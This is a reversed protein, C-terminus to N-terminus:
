KYLPLSTAADRCKIYHHAAKEEKTFMDSINNKGAIHSVDCFGSLINERVANERMQLYRLGKTTLNHSWKVCAENDNWIPIPGDTVKEFLNMDKLINSIHQLCKVCEDTAYIEAETSSRATITQRKSSWHVPGGLWIMFGSISRSKWLDLFQPPADVPVTKACQPGWNSDCLSTLKNPDLPFKVFSTMPQSDRSTFLIGRTPCSKLYRIVHKTATLHGPSPNTIHQALINTITSIDPRTQLSLWNLSGILSRLLSQLKLRQHPPMDEYPITDVPHGSQYPTKANNADILGALEILKETDAEQNMFISVHGDDHAQTQFKIGLFHTPPGNWDVGLGADETVRREFEKEVLDSSSSYIFDDVYLGVWIPPEGPIISGTFICPANPLPKLGISEFARKATEYWHRPSRKLGYLTRKLLLLMKPPTIPCGAPPRCVYKEDDPLFSQCFTQIFDGSKPIRKNNVALAILLRTELASLVPAFCDTKTWSHPDLNGFVVIRYKARNPKGFEDYKIKSIAMTPLTTGLLHRM